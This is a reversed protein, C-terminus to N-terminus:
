VVGDIPNGCLLAELSVGYVDALRQARIVTIPREGSEYSRLTRARFEGSTAAEVAHRSLGRAHRVRQLHDGTSRRSKSDASKNAELM